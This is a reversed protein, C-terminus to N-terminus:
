INYYKINMYMHIYIVTINVFYFQYRIYLQAQKKIHDECSFIFLRVPITVYEWV